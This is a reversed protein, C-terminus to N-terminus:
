IHMSFHIIVNPQPPISRNEKKAVPHHHPPTTYQLFHRSITIIIPSLRYFNIPQNNYHTHTHTTTSSKNDDLLIHGNVTPQNKEGGGEEIKRM